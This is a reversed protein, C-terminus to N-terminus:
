KHKLCMKRVEVPTMCTSHTGVRVGGDGNDPPRAFSITLALRMM